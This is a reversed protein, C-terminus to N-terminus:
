RRFAFASRRFASEQLILRADITGYQTRLKTLAQAIGVYADKYRGGRRGEPRGTAAPRAPVAGGHARRRTRSGAVADIFSSCVGLRARPGGFRYRCLVEAELTLRPRRLVRPRERDHGALPVPRSQPLSPAITSLDPTRSHGTVARILLNVPLLCNLSGALMVYDILLHASDGADQPGRAEVKTWYRVTVRQCNRGGDDKSPAIDNAQGALASSGTFATQKGRSAGRFQARRRHAAQEGASIPVPVGAPLKTKAMTRDTPGVYREVIAVLRKEEDSSLKAPAEIGSRTRGAASMDSLYRSGVVVTRRGRSRLGMLLDYYRDYDANADCVILTAAAGAREASQCFESVDRAAPVRGTAYLVPLRPDGRVCAVARALAVSKGSGSQGEVVIPMSRHAHDAAADTIQKRLEREFNREIAFGRRVGRWSCALEKWIAMSAGSRPM